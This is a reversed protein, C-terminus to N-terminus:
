SHAVKAPTGSAIWRASVRASNSRKAVRLPGNTGNRFSRPAQAGSLKEQLSQGTWEYGFGRPLLLALREMEAIADGSSYGPRASGSIRVSPYYNFGVIQYEWSRELIPHPPDEKIQPDDM